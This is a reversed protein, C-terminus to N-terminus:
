IDFRKSYILYYADNKDDYYFNLYSTVPPLLDIQHKSVFYADVISYLWTGIAVFTLIQSTTYNSEYEDYYKGSIEHKEYKHFAQSNFYFAGAASVAFVGFTVWAKVPQNNWGQGWGPMLASRVFANVPKAKSFDLKINGAYAASNIILVAIITLLIIKKM